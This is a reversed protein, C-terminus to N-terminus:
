FCCAVISVFGYGSLFIRDGAKDVGVIEGMEGSVPSRIVVEHQEPSLIKHGATSIFAAIQLIEETNTAKPFPASISYRPPLYNRKIGHEGLAPLRARADAQSQEDTMHERTEKVNQDMSM